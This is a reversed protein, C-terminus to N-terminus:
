ATVSRRGNKMGSSDSETPGRPELGENQQMAKFWHPACEHFDSTYAIESRCPRGKALFNCIAAILLL